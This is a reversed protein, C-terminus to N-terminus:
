AWVLSRLLLPHTQTPHAPPLVLRCLGLLDGSELGV